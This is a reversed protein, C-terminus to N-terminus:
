IKQAAFYAALQGRGVQSEAGTALNRVTFAGAMLEDQGVVILYPIKQKAAAKIQEGLKKEGFDQAVCVGARRLEQVLGVAGPLAGPTALAVYAQTPPTFPPILGRVEMFLRITEDGMGFGIGPLPENDFLGTLNDYRGGGFLARNNDPNTDFVEFVIGTYYAFGRVVSPDYEANNIGLSRLQALLASV